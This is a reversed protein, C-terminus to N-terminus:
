LWDSYKGLAEEARLEDHLGNLADFHSAMKLGRLREAEMEDWSWDDPESQEASGVVKANGLKETVEVAVQEPSSLSGNGAPTEAAAPTAAISM